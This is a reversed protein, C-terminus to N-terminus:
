AQHLHQCGAGWIAYAQHGHQRPQERQWGAGHHCCWSL